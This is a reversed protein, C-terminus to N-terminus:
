HRVDSYTTGVRVEDFTFTGMSYGEKLVIRDFGSAQFEPTMALTAQPQLDSENASSPNLFLMQQGATFDLKVVVWVTATGARVTSYSTMRPIISNDIGYRKSEFIVGFQPAAPGFGDNFTLVGFGPLAAAGQRMLFGLWVNGGASGGVPTLSASAADGNADNSDSLTVSNGASRIPRHRLSSAVVQPNLNLSTWGSQGPPSNPPPGDGALPGVPYAFSDSFLLEARANSFALAAGLLVLTM